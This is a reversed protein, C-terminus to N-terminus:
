CTHIQDHSQKIPFTINVLTGAAEMEYYKDIINVEVGTRETQNYLAIREETLAIGKSHQIFVQNNKQEITHRRGVGNDEISVTMIKEDANISIDICGERDKLGAIGHRICNEIFPQLIFTPINIDEVVLGEQIHFSFQFAHGLKTQEMKLYTTLFFIEKDLSIEKLSTIEFLLRILTSFENMFKSAGSLDRNIVYQYFSNLSNFIFHPNMQARLALQELEQVRAKLQSKEQQRLRAKTSRRHLFIAVTTFLIIIGLLHVWWYQWWYQRIVFPIKVIKSKLNFRNTAFIEFTYRGAPLSPYSLEQQDTTLWKDSLGELRYTYKIKGMSRFSIGSFLFKINNDQPRLVLDNAGMPINHGSVEIENILLRCVGQVPRRSIDLVSYGVSTGVWVKDAEAYVCNIDDSVLGDLTFLKTVLFNNDPEIVNLGNNTGIFVKRGDTFICKCISGSLGNSENINRLVTGHSNLCYVGNDSTIVWLLDRKWNWAMSVITGNFLLKSNQKNHVKTETEPFTYLGDLTGIYYAGHFSYGCTSRENWIERFDGKNLPVIAVNFTTAILLSDRLNSVSKIFRTSVHGAQKIKKALIADTSLKWINGKPLIFSEVPIKMNDIDPDLGCTAKNIRRYRSDKCSIFLGKASCYFNRVQLTTNGSTRTVSINRGPPIYYVGFGDTGIWTGKEDDVEVYNTSVGRILTDQVKGTKLRYTLSGHRTNFVFSSDNLVYATNVLKPIPIMSTVKKGSYVRINQGDNILISAYKRKETVFYYSYPSTNQRILSPDLIGQLFQGAGRQPIFFGKEEFPNPYIICSDNLLILANFKRTQIILRGKADEVFSIGESSVPIRRILLSNKKNYIKGQYYYCLEKKFPSIWVRNKIDVFICYIENAPLGDKVTFNKFSRGDFRCAGTESSIWLFGDKDQVVNSINNSPLGDSATFHLM